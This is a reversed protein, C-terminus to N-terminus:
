RRARQSKSRAIAEVARNIAVTQYYRPSKRSSGVYYPEAVVEEAADTISGYGRRGADDGAVM